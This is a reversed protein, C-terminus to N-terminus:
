RKLAKEMRDILKKYKKQYREEDGEEKYENLEEIDEKFAELFYKWQLDTMGMDSGRKADIDCRM